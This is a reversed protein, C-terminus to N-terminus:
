AVSTEATKSWRFKTVGVSSSTPPIVPTPVNTSANQLAVKGSELEVILSQIESNLNECEIVEEEVEDESILLFIDENIKTLQKHKEKLKALAKDYNLIVPNEDDLLSRAESFTKTVVGRYGGRIKKLKSISPGQNSSTSPDTNPTTASEGQKLM